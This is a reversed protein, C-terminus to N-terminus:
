NSKSSQKSSPSLILCIAGVLAWAVMTLSYAVPILAMAEEPSAQFIKMFTATVADRIGIGGPTLPFLGTVNGIQTSVIYQLPTMATEHFAKGLLFNMCALLTHITASLTLTKIAASPQKRYLDLAAVVRQSLEAIKRPTHREAFCLIAKAPRFEMWWGRSLIVATGLALAIGGGCIAGLAMMLARSGLVADPYLAILLASSLMAVVFLGMLGVIRDVAITLIAETKHTETYGAIFASKILDGSVSGPIINSFFVGILTLRLATALSIDIGQVHLLIKWRWAAIINVIGYCALTLILPLKLAAALASTFDAEAVNLTKKVLLFALAVGALKLLLRL